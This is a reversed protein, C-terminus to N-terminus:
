RVLGIEEGLDAFLRHPRPLAIRQSPRIRLRQEVCVDEGLDELALVFRDPLPRRRILPLEPVERDARHRDHLDDLAQVPEPAFLGDLWEQGPQARELDHGHVRLHSCECTADVRVQLASPAGDTARVRQDGGRRDKVVAIQDGSVDSVELGCSADAAVRAGALDLSQL